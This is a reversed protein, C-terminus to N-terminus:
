TPHFNGFSFDFKPALQFSFIDSEDKIVDVGVLQYVPLAPNAQLRSILGVSSNDQRKANM